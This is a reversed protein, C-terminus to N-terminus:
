PPAMLGVVSRLRRTAGKSTIESKVGDPSWGVAIASRVRRMSDPSCFTTSSPAVPVPLDAVVAHSTSFTCRGVRTIAGFLVSAACSAFSNRSSNGFL